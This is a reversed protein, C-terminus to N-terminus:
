AVVRALEPHHIPDRGLQRPQDSRHGRLSYRWNAITYAIRSGDPSWTPAWEAGAGDTLRIAPAGDPRITFLDWPGLSRRQFVIHSGDPAWAGADDQVFNNTLQVKGTGDPNMLYLEARRNRGQTYLIRTGDPSWKPLWDYHRRDTLCREDSGDASMVFIEYRRGKQERVFVIQTGDPSWSAQSGQDESLRTVGSGDANMVYIHSPANFPRRPFRQFLIQTGDPSWEPGYDSAHTLRTINEGMQDMTYIGSYPSERAFAILGQNTAATAAPIRLQAATCMVLVALWIALTRVPM